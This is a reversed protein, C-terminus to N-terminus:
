GKVTEYSGFVYDNAKKPAHCNYCHALRGGAEVKTAQGNVVVYEWDGWEKHFGPYRKIMVTLLEPNKSAPSTLKEKVIVSGTAFRLPGPNQMATKGIDNVYVRFYKKSHPNAPSAQAELLSRDRFDACQSAVIPPMIEARATVQHWSKYGSIQDLAILGMGQNGAPTSHRQQAYFVIGAVASCSVLVVAYKLKGM